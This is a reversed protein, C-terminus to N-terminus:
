DTIVLIHHTLAQHCYLVYGTLRHDSSFLSDAIPPSIFVGQAHTFDSGPVIYFCIIVTRGRLYLVNTYCKYTSFPPGANYLHQVFTKKTIPTIVLIHFTM